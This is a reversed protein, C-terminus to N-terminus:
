DRWAGKKVNAYTSRVMGISTCVAKNIPPRGDVRVNKQLWAFYEGLAPFYAPVEKEPEESLDEKKNM